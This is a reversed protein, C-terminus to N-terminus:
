VYSREFFKGDDARELKSKVGRYDAQEKKEYKLKCVRVVLGIKNCYWKKETWVPPM